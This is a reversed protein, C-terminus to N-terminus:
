LRMEGKALDELSERDLIRIQRGEGLEIFGERAMRALIRSLTEPITGLLSSLQVKTLELVLDDTEGQRESLYLLHAALRGPVEKLSLDEIMHAFRRLRQSLEALMNLAVAPNHMILDIFPSRPFFLTRLPEIAEAYAPFNRGAFVAVEAFPEGPGFVHLIQEKGEPSLKYIKVRGSRVVYFGAAEEGDSFIVQGKAFDKPIVISGLLQKQTVPLGAFMPIATMEDSFDM